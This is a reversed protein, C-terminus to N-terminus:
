RADEEGYVHSLGLESYIEASVERIRRKWNTVSGTTVELFEAIAEERPQGSRGFPLVAELYLWQFVQWLNNKVDASPLKKVARKQVPGSWLHRETMRLKLEDM